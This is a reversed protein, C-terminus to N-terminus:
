DRLIRRTDIGWWAYLPCTGFAGTLLPGLGIYGWAGIERTAALTILLLGVGVRLLRDVFGVNNSLFAM